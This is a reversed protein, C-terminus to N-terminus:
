GLRLLVTGTGILLAAVARWITLKEGLFVVSILMAFLISTERLAAVVAVPAKTMAWVAIMYSGGGMLGALLTIGWERAPLRLMGPGRFLLCAALLITSDTAFMWAGYGLVSAALRAGHGDALTYGAIFLSTVLAFLVARNAVGRGGGRLAMLLVGGCLLLIGTGARPSVAESLAVFGILAVVLPSAGRALAFTQALDGAAYAKTLFVRYGNQMGISLLIFPWVAKGPMAVFPLFLLSTAGIGLTMLTIATFPDLRIKILANWAAHMVAAGLVALFITPTM